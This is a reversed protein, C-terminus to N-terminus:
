VKIKMCKGILLKLSMLVWFAILSLEIAGCIYAFKNLFVANVSALMLIFVVNILNIVSFIVFLKRLNNMPFFAYEVFIAVFQVPIMYMLILFAGLGCSDYWPFGHITSTLALLVAAFICLQIGWLLVLAINRLVKGFM